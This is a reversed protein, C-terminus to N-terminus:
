GHHGARDQRVRGQDEQHLDHLKQNTAEESGNEPTFYRQSVESISENEQNLKKFCPEFLKKIHKTQHSYINSWSYFSLKLDKCIKSITPKIEQLDDMKSEELELVSTSLEQFIAGLDSMKTKVQDLLSLIESLVQSGQELYQKNHKTVFRLDELFIHRKLKIDEEQDIEKTLHIQDLVSINPDQEEGEFMGPATERINKYSRKMRSFARSSFEKEKKSKFKQNNSCSLFFVLFRSKHINPKNLLYKVYNELDTETEGDFYNIDLHPFERKIRQSLWNFDDVSRRVEWNYPTISCHFIKNSRFLSTKEIETRFFYVLFNSLSPM